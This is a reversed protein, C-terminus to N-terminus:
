YDEHDGHDRITRGDRITRRDRVARGDRFTRMTETSTFCWWFEVRFRFWCGGNAEMSEGDGAATAAGAATPPFDLSGLASDSSYSQGVRDRHEGGYSQGGAPDHHHDSSPYSQGGHDGGSFRQGPPASRDSAYTQGGHDGGGGGRHHHHDDSTYSQEVHDRHHDSAYTQGVHHDTNYHAAPLTPPLIPQFYRPRAPVPPPPGKNGAVVLSTIKTLISGSSVIYDKM